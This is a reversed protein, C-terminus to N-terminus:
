NPIISCDPKSLGESLPERWDKNKVKFLSARFPTKPALPANGAYKAGLQSISDSLDPAIFLPAERWGSWGNEPNDLDFYKYSFDKPTIVAYGDFEVGNLRSPETLTLEEVSSSPNNIQIITRTVMANKGSTLLETNIYNFTLRKNVSPDIVIKKGEYRTYIGEGCKAFNTDFWKAALKEAATKTTVGCSVTAISFLILFIIIRM